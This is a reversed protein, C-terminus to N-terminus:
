ANVEEMQDGGEGGEGEVSECSEYQEAPSTVSAAPAPITKEKPAKAARSPTLRGTGGTPTPKSAASSKGRGRSRVVKYSPSQTTAKAIAAGENTVAPHAVPPPPMSKFTLPQFVNPGQAFSPLGSPGFSVVQNFTAASYADTQISSVGAVPHTLVQAFSPLGSSGFSVVPSFTAASTAPAQIGSVGAIPHAANPDQHTRKVPLSDQANDPHSRKGRNPQYPPLIRDDSLVLFKSKLHGKLSTCLSMARDLDEQTLLHRFGHVAEVYSLFRTPKDKGGVRFVTYVKIFIHVDRDIM